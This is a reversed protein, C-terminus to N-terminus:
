QELLSDSQWRLVFKWFTMFIWVLLSVGLISAVAIDVFMQVNALAKAPGAMIWLAASSIFAFAGFAPLMVQLILLLFHQYPTLREHELWSVREALDNAREHDTIDNM